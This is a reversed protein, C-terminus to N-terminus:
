CENYVNFHMFTLSDLVSMKLWLHHFIFCNPKTKEEVPLLLIKYIGHKLVSKEHDRNM